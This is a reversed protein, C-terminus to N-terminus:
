LPGRKKEALTKIKEIIGKAIYDQGDTLLLDEMTTYRSLEIQLQETHKLLLDYQLKLSSVRRELLKNREILVVAYCLSRLLDRFFVSNRNDKKAVRPLIENDLYLIQDYVKAVPMAELGAAIKKEEDRYKHDQENALTSRLWLDAKISEFSYDNM